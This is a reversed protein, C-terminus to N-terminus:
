CFSVNIKTQPIQPAGQPMPTRLLQLADGHQQLGLGDSPQHKLDNRM